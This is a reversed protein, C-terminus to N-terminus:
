SWGGVIWRPDWVLQGFGWWCIQPVAGSTFNCDPTACTRSQDIITRFHFVSTLTFHATCEEEIKPDRGFVSKFMDWHKTLEEQAFNQVMEEPVRGAEVFNSSGDAQLPNSPFCSRLVKIRRRTERCEVSQELREEVSKQRGVVLRSVHGM